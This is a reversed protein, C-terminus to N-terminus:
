NLYKRFSLGINYFCPVSVRTANVTALSNYDGYSSSVASNSKELSFKKATTFGVSLNIDLPSKEGFSYGSMLGFDYYMSLKGIMHAKYGVYSVDSLLGLEPINTLPEQIANSVGVYDFEGSTNAFSLNYVIPKALNFYLGFFAKSKGLYHKFDFGIIASTASLNYNEKVETSTVLLEDLQQNPNLVSVVQNQFDVKSWFDNSQQVGFNLSFKSKKSNTDILNFGVAIKSLSNSFIENIFNSKTDVSLYVDVISECKNDVSSKNDNFDIKLNSFLKSLSDISNRYTLVTREVQRINSELLLNKQLLVLEKKHNQTSKAIDSVAPFLSLTILTSMKKDKQCQTLDIKKIELPLNSYSNDYVVSSQDLFGFLESKIYFQSEQIKYGFFKLDLNERSRSNFKVILFYLQGTFEESKKKIDLSSYKYGVDATDLFCIVSSLNGSNIELHKLIKLESASRDDIEIFNIQSNAEFSLIFAVFFLTVRFIM